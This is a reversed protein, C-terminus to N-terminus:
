GPVRDHGFPELLMFALGTLALVTEGVFRPVGQISTCFM